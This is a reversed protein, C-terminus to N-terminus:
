KQWLSRRANPERSTKRDLIATQPNAEPREPHQMLYSKAGKEARNEPNARNTEIPNKPENKKENKGM